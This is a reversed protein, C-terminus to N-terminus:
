SGIQWEAIAAVDIAENDFSLFRRFAAVNRLRFLRFYLAHRRSRKLREANRKQLPTIKLVCVGAIRGADRDDVFWKRTTVPGRTISDAFTNLCGAIANPHRDDTYNAADLM